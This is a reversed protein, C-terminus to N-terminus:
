PNISLHQTQMGATNAQAVSGNLSKMEDLVAKVEADDAVAHIEGRVLSRGIPDAMEGHCCSTKLWATRVTATAGSGSRSVEVLGSGSYELVDDQRNEDGLLCWHISANTNAPHDAKTGPEPTWFVRIHVFQRPEIHSDPSIPKRPDDHRADSGEQVLVIDADGTSNQSIYAHSFGQSFACHRELSAMRLQSQTSSGCGATLAFLFGSLAFLSRSGLKANMM